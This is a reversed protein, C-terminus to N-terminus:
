VSCTENIVSRRNGNLLSKKLGMVPKCSNLANRPWRDSRGPTVNRDVSTYCMGTQYFLLQADRYDGAWQDASALDM